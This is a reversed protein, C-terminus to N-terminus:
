QIGEENNGKQPMGPMLKLAEEETVGYRWALYVEPRMLGAAVEAMRRTIEKDKDEIISDDFTVTIEPEAVFSYGHRNAIDILLLILDVIVAELIVEHKKITRFMTNNESIVQTATAPGGSQYRYFNEGLGCQSSFRNLGTRIATEHADARLTMDTEKIFPEGSKGAAEPLQYYVLDNPDFVPQGSRINVAEPAVMIRKKGLIFENKYSDYVTDLFKMTDLANAFVAIGLPNDVDINNAINLRDVVFPKVRSKTYVKPEVNEYGPIESFDVEEYTEGKADAELLLNEIEYLGDDDMVFLQVFLFDDGADTAPSYVCLENIVGNEWSLPIMNEATVYNMKIGDATWYPIYAMTGFAAKREQSENLKVYVNNDDFVGKIFDDTAQDDIAITCKENFLLNALAECISKGLQMSSRRVAVDQVGNWVRYDHFGKVDGKYWSKWTAIHDSMSDNITYGRGELFKVLAKDMAMVGERTSVPMQEHM